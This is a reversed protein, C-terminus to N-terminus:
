YYGRGRRSANNTQQLKHIAKSQTQITKSQTHNNGALEAFLKVAVDPLDQILDQFRPLEVLDRLRPGLYKCIQVKLPGVDVPEKKVFDVVVWLSIGDDCLDVLRFAHAACYCCLEPCDYKDAMVYMRLDVAVMDNNCYSMPLLDDIGQADKGRLAATMMQNMTVIPNWYSHEYRSYPYRGTYVWCIMRAVDAADEEHLTVDNTQAEQFQSSCLTKFFGSKETMLDKHVPSSFNAINIKFDAPNLLQSFFSTQDASDM